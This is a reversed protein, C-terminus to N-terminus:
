LQQSTNAKQSLKLKRLPTRRSESTVGAVPREQDLTGIEERLQQQEAEGPVVPVMVPVMVPELEQMTEAVGPAELTATKQLMTPEEQIAVTMLREALASTLIVEETVPLVIGQLIAKKTVSSALEIAVEAVAAEVETMVVEMQVTELSTVKKTASTASWPDALHDPTQTLVNELWTDPNIASLATAMAVAVVSEMVAAAEMLATEQSTAKKTASSALELAAEAVVVAAVVVAKVTETEEIEIETEEIETEIAEIEVLPTEAM